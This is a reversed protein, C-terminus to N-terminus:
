VAGLAVDHVHISCGECEVLSTRLLRCTGLLKLLNCVRSSWPSHAVVKCGVYIGLQAKVVKMSPHRVWEVFARPHKSEIEPLRGCFKM